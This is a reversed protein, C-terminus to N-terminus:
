VAALEGLVDDVTEALRPLQPRTLLRDAGVAKCKKMNDDYSSMGFVIVPLHKLRPDSKIRQTLQLGGLGPMEIDTVVVDPPSAADTMEELKNLAAAGDDVAVVRGFEAAQLSRAITQRRADSHDALLITIQDRTM